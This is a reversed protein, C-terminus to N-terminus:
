TNRAVATRRLASKIALALRVDDECDPCDVLHAAVWLLEDDTLEDDCFADLRRQYWRHRLPRM